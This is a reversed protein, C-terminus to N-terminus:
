SGAPLRHSSRPTPSAGFAQASPDQEDTPLTRFTLDDLLQEIGALEGRQRSEAGIPAPAFDRRWSAETVIGGPHREARTDVEIHVSPAVPLLERGIAVAEVVRLAVGRRERREPIRERAGTGANRDDVDRRQRTGLRGREDHGVPHAVRDLSGDGDDAPGSQRHRDCAVRRPLAVRDSAVRVRRSRESMREGRPGRQPLLHEDIQEVRLLPVEEDRHSGLRVADAVLSPVVEVGDVVHDARGVGVEPLQEVGGSGFRDDHDERQEAHSRVVRALVQEVLDQQAEVAHALPGREAQARDPRNPAQRRGCHASASRSTDM